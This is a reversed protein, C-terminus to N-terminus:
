SAGNVGTTTAKSWHVLLFKNGPLSVENSVITGSALAEPMKCFECPSSGGAIKEYCSFGSIDGFQKLGTENQFQVRHTLPDIVSVVVPQSNLLAQADYCPLGTPQEFPAM